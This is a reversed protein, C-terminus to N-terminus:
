KKCLFQFGPRLLRYKSKSSLMNCSVELDTGPLGRPDAELLKWTGSIIKSMCILIRVRVFRCKSMCSPINCSDELDTCLQGGHDAELPRWTGSIIKSM